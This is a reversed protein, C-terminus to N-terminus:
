HIGRENLFAGYAKDTKLIHEKLWSQLFLLLADPAGTKEKQFDDLYKALNRVFAEHEVRHTALGPFNHQEMLIEESAFHTQAYRALKDLTDKMASAGHGKALAANLENLLDFLGQHQRDLKAINVSYRESWRFVAVSEGSNEM